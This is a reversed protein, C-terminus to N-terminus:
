ISHLPAICTFPLPSSTVYKTSESRVSSYITLRKLRSNRDFLPPDCSKRTPLPNMGAKKKSFNGGIRRLPVERGICSYCNKEWGYFILVLYRRRSRAAQEALNSNVILHRVRRSMRRFIWRSLNELNAGIRLLDQYLLAAIADNIVQQRFPRNADYGEILSPFIVERLIERLEHIGFIAFANEREM